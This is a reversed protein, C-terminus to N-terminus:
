VRVGNSLGSVSSCTISQLRSNDSIYDLIVHGLVSRQYEPTDMNNRLNGAALWRKAEFGLNASSDKTPINQKAPM